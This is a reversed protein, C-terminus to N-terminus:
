RSGRMNLLDRQVRVWQGNTRSDLDEETDLQAILEEITPLTSGEEVLRSPREARDLQTLLEEVGPVEEDSSEACDFLMTTDHGDASALAAEAWDRPGWPHVGAIGDDSSHKRWEVVRANRPFQRPRHRVRDTPGMIAAYIRNVTSDLPSCYLESVDVSPLGVPLVVLLQDM